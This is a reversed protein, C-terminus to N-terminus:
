GGLLELTTGERWSATSIRWTGRQLVWALQLVWVSPTLDGQKTAGAVIETQARGETITLTRVRASLSVGPHQLHQSRLLALVEARVVEGSGRFDQTLLDAVDSWQGAEIVEAAEDVRRRLRAEEDEARCGPGLVLAGLTLLVTRRRFNMTSSPPQRSATM